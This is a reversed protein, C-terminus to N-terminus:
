EGTPYLGLARPKGARVEIVVLPRTEAFHSDPTFGTPGVLLPEAEFRDLEALVAAVELTGAREASEFERAM